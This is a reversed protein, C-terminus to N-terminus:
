GRLRAAMRQLLEETKGWGLCPDTISLGGLDLEEPHAPDVKQSGDKLFSEVMFGKLLKKLEPRQAVTALTEFIVETQRQHEKKGDNVCNDHSADVIVAPNQIHNQAMYQRSKELHTVSYNPGETSGRLVLHAFPNGHTQVVQGDLVAVHPHQAAVLSNVGVRLSGHTPNKFGVACDMGSAFIRHEQNETSRAGIAAWSLLESFGKLNNTFLAEDAIPLGLGIVDMMMQRAYRMGAEM